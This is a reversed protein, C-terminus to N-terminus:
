TRRQKVDLPTNVHFVALVGLFVAIDVENERLGAHLLEDYVSEGVRTVMPNFSLEPLKELDEVEFYADEDRAQKQAQVRKFYDKIQKAESSTVPANNFTLRKM